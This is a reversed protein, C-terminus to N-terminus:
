CFFDEPVLVVYRSASTTSNTSTSDSERDGVVVAEDLRNIDHVERVLLVRISSEHVMVIAVDSDGVVDHPRRAIM